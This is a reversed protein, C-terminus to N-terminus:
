LFLTVLLFLASLLVGLGGVTMAWVTYPDTKCKEKKNKFYEILAGVVGAACVPIAIGGFFSLLIGICAVVFWAKGLPTKREATQVTCSVAPLCPNEIRAGEAQLRMGCEMCFLDEDRAKRGCNM